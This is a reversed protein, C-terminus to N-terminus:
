SFGTASVLVQVSDIGAGAEDRVTGALPSYREEPEGPCGMSLIGVLPLLYRYKRLSRYFTTM